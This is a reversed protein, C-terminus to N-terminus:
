TIDPALSKANARREPTEAEQRLAKGLGLRLTTEM